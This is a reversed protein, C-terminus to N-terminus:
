ASFKAFVRTSRCDDCAAARKERQRAAFRAPLALLDDV